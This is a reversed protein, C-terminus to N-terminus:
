PTVEILFFVKPEGVGYGSHTRAGIYYSTVGPASVAPVTCTFTQVDGPDLPLLWAVDPGRDFLSGGSCSVAFDVAAGAPDPLPREFPSTPTRPHHSSFVELTLPQGGMHDATFTSRATVQLTASQGVTVQQFAPDVTM